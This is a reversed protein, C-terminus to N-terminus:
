ENKNRPSHWHTPRQHLGFHRSQAAIAMQSSLKLLQILVPFLVCYVLESWNKPNRLAKPTIRAGRLCQIRYIERVEEAMYPLLSLSAAMVFAWKSPLFASLVEGIREPAATICLWWGPITALIIRGVVVAGLALHEIGYLILYLSLTITLQIVGLKLVGMISGRRALGHLVLLGNVAALPLLLDSPLVFACTSLVCVLFLSLACLTTEQRERSWRRRARQRWRRCSVWM